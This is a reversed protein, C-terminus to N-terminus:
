LEQNFTTVGDILKGQLCSLEGQTATCNSNLLCRLHHLEQFRTEGFLGICTMGQKCWGGDIGIAMTLETEEIAIGASETLRILVIYLNVVTEEANHEM